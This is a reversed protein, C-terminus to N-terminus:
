CSQEKKKQLTKIVERVERLRFTQDFGSFKLYDLQDEVKMIISETYNLDISYKGTESKFNNTFLANHIADSCIHRYTAKSISKEDSIEEVKKFKQNALEAMLDLKSKITTALDTNQITYFESEYIRIPSIRNAQQAKRFDLKVRQYTAAEAPKEHTAQDKTGIIKRQLLPTLPEHDLQRVEPKINKEFRLKYPTITKDNCHYHPITLDSRELFERVSIEKDKVQTLITENSQSKPSAFTLFFVAPLICLAKLFKKNKIFDIDM